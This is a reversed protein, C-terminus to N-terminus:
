PKLAVSSEGGAAVQVFDNGSPTNSVQGRLDWGWSVLSGDSKLALFHTDGGSVQVFNNGSPTNSVQGFSDYGWSVLSGDSKLALFHNEGASVQVFDNGSPTNSVQGLSDAGWSVLSGDSKLAVSGYAGAAVQVFDNGSPTNSVQGYNDYGWSVLSSDSKLAHFSQYGAAVQVFDNGSPTNSVQGHNDYGWAVLSYADQEVTVPVMNTVSYISNAFQIGQCWVQMGATASSPVPLPGLAGNGASDLTFPGLTKIPMSLNLTIGNGLNTPGSGNRSYCIGAWADPSGNQVEFTITGGIYVPDIQLTQAFLAPSLAFALLPSLFYKQM